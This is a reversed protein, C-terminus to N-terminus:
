SVPSLFLSLQTTIVRGWWLAKLTSVVAWSPPAFCLTGLNVLCPLFTVEWSQTKLIHSGSSSFACSKPVVGEETGRLVGMGRWLSWLCSQINESKPFCSKLLFFNLLGGRLLTLFGIAEPWDERCRRPRADTLKNNNYDIKRDSYGTASMIM